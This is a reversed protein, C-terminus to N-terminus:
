VQDHAEDQHAPPAEPGELILTHDPALVQLFTPRDPLCGRATDLSTEDRVLFEPLTDLIPGISASYIVMSVAFMMMMMTVPVMSGFASCRRM